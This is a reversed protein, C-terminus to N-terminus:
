NSSDEQSYGESDGSVYFKQDNHKVWHEGNEYECNSFVNRAEFWSSMFQSIPVAVKEEVNWGHEDELVKDSIRGFVYQEGGIEFLGYAKLFSTVSKEEKSNVFLGLVELYKAKYMSNITKFTDFAVIERLMSTRLSGVFLCQGVTPTSMNGESTYGVDVRDNVPYEADELIQEKRIKARIM